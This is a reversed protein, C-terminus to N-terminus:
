DGAGPLAGPRATPKFDLEGKASGATVLLRYKVGPQLPQARAGAVALKMGSVRGGYIFPGSIPVSNTDAVLHWLPLCQHNTQWEALEVVRIDNFKYPREFKFAIPVTASDATPVAPNVLNGFRGRFRPNLARFMRGARGNARANARANVRVNIAAIHIIKPKFWDTFHVVYFVALGIAVFFLFWNRKTM